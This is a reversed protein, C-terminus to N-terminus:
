APSGAPETERPERSANDAIRGREAAMADAVAALEEESMGDPLGEPWSVGVKVPKGFLMSESGGRLLSVPDTIREAWYNDEALWLNKM